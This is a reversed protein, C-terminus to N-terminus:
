ILFIEFNFDPSLIVKGKIYLTLGWKFTFLNERKLVQKDRNRQNEKRSVGILYVHSKRAWIQYTYIDVKYICKKRIKLIIRKGDEIEKKRKTEKLSHRM